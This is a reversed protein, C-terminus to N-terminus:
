LIPFKNINKNRFVPEVHEIQFLGKERNEFAFESTIMQIPNMEAGGGGGPGVLIVTVIEIFERM